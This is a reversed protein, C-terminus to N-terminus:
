PTFPILIVKGIWGILVMLYATCAFAMVGALYFGLRHGNNTYTREAMMIVILVIFAWLLISILQIFLAGEGNFPALIFWGMWGILRMFIAVVIVGIIVQAISFLGEKLRFETKGRIAFVLAFILGWLLSSIKLLMERDMDM